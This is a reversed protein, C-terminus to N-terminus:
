KIDFEQLWSEIDSDNSNGADKSASEMSPYEKVIQTETTGAM